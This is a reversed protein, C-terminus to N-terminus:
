CSSREVRIAASTAVFFGGSSDLPTLKYLSLPASLFSAASDGNDASAFLQFQGGRVILRRRKTSVLGSVATIHKRKAVKEPQAHASALRDFKEHAIFELPPKAASQRLFEKHHGGRNAIIAETNQNVQRSCHSSQASSFTNAKAMPLSVLSLCLVGCMAQAASRRADSFVVKPILRTGVAFLLPVVWLDDAYGGPLFDPNLDFPCLLYVPALLLMLRAVIPVRVDSWARALTDFLEEIRLIQNRIVTFM